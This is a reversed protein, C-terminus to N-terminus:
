QIIKRAPIINIADSFIMVENGRKKDNAAYQLTFSETAYDHYLENILPVNDYTMLWKRRSLRSGVVSQLRAHDDPCFANKYLNGGKIVYPPDLYFFCWKRTLESQTLLLDRADMNYLLIRKRRDAIQRIRRILEGKNFRCDIKYNGKQENGGIVGGTLIGSRNTRNLFLTAFGIELLTHTRAHDYVYKQKKREDITVPTDEILRILRETENVVSHWFAYICYDLDNIVIEKVDDNLLLAVAIGAGGAFPEIYTYRHLGNREILEKIFPYLVSKGGPYRLPSLSKM